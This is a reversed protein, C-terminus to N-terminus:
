AFARNRDQHGKVEQFVVTIPIISVLKCIAQILNPHKMKSPVLHNRVSSLWWLAHDNDCCVIVKGSSVQLFVCIVYIALLLFHLGQLESHYANVECEDGSTQVVCKSVQNTASDQVHWAATGLKSHRTPRYSGDAVALGHGEIFANALMASFQELNTMKIPWSHNWFNILQTISM